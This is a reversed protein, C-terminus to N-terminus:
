VSGVLAARLTTDHSSAVGIRVVQGGPVSRMKFLSHIQIFFLISINSPTCTLKRLAINQFTQIVAV